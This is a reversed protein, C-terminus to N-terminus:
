IDFSWLYLISRGKYSGAQRRINAHLSARQGARNAQLSPEVFVFQLKGKSGVQRRINAHPSARQGACNAQLSTRWMADPVIMVTM